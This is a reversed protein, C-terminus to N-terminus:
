IIANLTASPRMAKRTKEEDSHFYGGIDVPSGQAALLEALITDENERLQQALKTFKAQLEANNDQTAVAEAWYRALYYHSGRNDLENVKRSPSKANELYEG